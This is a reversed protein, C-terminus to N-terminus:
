NNNFTQLLTDEEATLPAEDSSFDQPYWAYLKDLNGRHVGWELAKEDFSERLQQSPVRGRMTALYRELLALKAALQLRRVQPESLMFGRKLTELHDRERPDLTGDVYAMAWCLMLITQKVQATSVNSMEAASLNPARQLRAVTAPEAGLEGLLNKEEQRWETDARSIELLARALVERDYSELVPATRLQHEFFQAPCAAQALGVWREGVQTLAPAVQEFARLSLEERETPTLYVAPTNGLVTRVAHKLWRAVSRQSDGPTAAQGAARAVVVTQEFRGCDSVFHFSVEHPTVQESRILHAIQAYSPHAM